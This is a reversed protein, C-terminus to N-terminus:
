AECDIVNVLVAAILGVPKVIITDTFPPVAVLIKVEDDGPLAMVEDASAAHTALWEVRAPYEIEFVAPLLTTVM